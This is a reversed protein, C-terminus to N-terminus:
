PQVEEGDGETPPEQLNEPPLALLQGEELVASDHATSFIPEPRLKHLGPVFGAPLAQAANEEQRAPDVHPPLPLPLPSRLIAQLHLLGDNRYQVRGVRAPPLPEPLVVKVLFLAATILVVSLFIFVGMCGRLPRSYKVHYVLKDEPTSM